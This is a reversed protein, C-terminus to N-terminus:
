KDSKWLMKLLTIPHQHLFDSLENFFIDGILFFNGFTIYSTIFKLAVPLNQVDIRIIRLHYQKLKNQLYM